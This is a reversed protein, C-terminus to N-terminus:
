HASRNTAVRCSLRTRSPAQSRPTSNSPMFLLSVFFLPPSFVEAAATELLAGVLLDNIHETACIVFLDTLLDHLTGLLANGLADPLLCKVRDDVKKHLPDHLPENLISVKELLANGLADPSHAM